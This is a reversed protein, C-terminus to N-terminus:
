KVTVTLNYTWEGKEGGEWPRNYSMSITTTGSKLAKFHWVERGGAGVVSGAPSLYESEGDQQLVAPDAIGTLEWQFGTTRNSGLTVKLSGGVPVEVQQGINKQSMFDDISVEVSAEKPPSSCAVLALVLIAMLGAAFLKLKM